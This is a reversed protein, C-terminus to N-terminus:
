NQFLNQQHQFNIQHNRLIKGTLGDFICKIFQKSQLCKIVCNVTIFVYLYHHDLLLRQESEKREKTQQSVTGTGNEKDREKLGERKAVEEQEKRKAIEQQERRYGKHVGAM